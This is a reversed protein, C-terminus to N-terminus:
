VFTFYGSTSKREDRDGAWDSDTYALLDVNGNKKFLIGRGCTGKLYRIIRMVVELHVTQPLHM